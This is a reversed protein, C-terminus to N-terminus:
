AREGAGRRLAKNCRALTIKKKIDPVKLDSKELSAKTYLGRKVTRLRNIQKQNVKHSSKKSNKTEKIQKNNM